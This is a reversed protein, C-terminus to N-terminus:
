YRILRKFIIFLIFIPVIGYRLLLTFFSTDTTTMKLEAKNYRGEKIFIPRELPLGIVWHGENIRESVAEYIIDRNNEITSETISTEQFVITLIRRDIQRQITDFTKYTFFVLGFFLMPYLLTKVFTRRSLTTYSLYVFELVLLALYTR